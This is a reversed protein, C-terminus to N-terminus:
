CCKYYVKVKQEKASWAIYVNSDKGLRYDFGNLGSQKLENYFTKDPVNKDPQEDPTVAPELFHHEEFFYAIEEKLFKMKDSEKKLDATAIYNKLLENTKIEQRYIEKGDASKITFLLQMDKTDKGVLAVKFTDLKIADSFAFTTTKEFDEANGDKTDTSSNCAYLLGITLLAPIIFKKM